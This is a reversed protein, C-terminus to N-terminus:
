PCQDLNNIANAINEIRNDSSPHSSFFEPPKGGATAEELIEMVRIMENPDYGAQYMICVGLLDAELEDERGYKMNILNGILMAIQATGQSSPNNPDYSAVVVAGTIGQTLEQKAIQQASHRGIVHVIEHALVGAVQDETELRDYLAATMFVQGGPLAFANVTNMDALLHFEFPYDGQDAFSSGVLHFGIQDIYDQLEQNQYLGGFQQALEPAAQVGLVIEQDKTITIYQEEGTIPNVEKSGFYSFLSIGIM